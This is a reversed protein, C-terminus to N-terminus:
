LRSRSRLAGLLHAVVPAPSRLTVVESRHVLPPQRLPIRIVGAGAAWPLDPLLAAGHGARVLSLLTALDRGRYTVPGGVGADTIAPWSLSPAVVWPADRLTDLDLGNRAQLPHGAPLVVVLPVEVLATSALLGADALALPSDAATIGDVLAAGAHGAAVAGVAEAIEASRVSIRVAPHSRRIARLADALLDPAALPCVDVRLDARLDSHDNLESRAVDLRLLIRAAHEALRAGAPTPRVPRRELLRCGTQHELSAIQQSIASQTYGLERAAATFSSTRVVSLFARLDRLEIETTNSIRVDHSIM